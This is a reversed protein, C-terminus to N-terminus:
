LYRGIWLYSEYLWVAYIYVRRWTVQLEHPDANFTSGHFIARDKLRFNDLLQGTWFFPEFVHIPSSNSVSRTMMMMAMMMKDFM